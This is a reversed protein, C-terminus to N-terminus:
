CKIEKWGKSIGLTFNMENNYTTFMCGYIISRIRLQHQIDFLSRKKESWSVYVIVKGEKGFVRAKNKIKYIAQLM